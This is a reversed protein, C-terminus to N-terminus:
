DVPTSGHLTGVKTAIVRSDDITGAGKETRCVIEVNQEAAFTQVASLSLVTASGSAEVSTLGGDWTTTASPDQALACSMESNAETAAFTVKGQLLYSGAPVTVQGFSAFTSTLTGTARGDAYVDSPGAAGATGPAGAAGNAGKAGNSGNRGAAGRQGRPGQPGVKSWSVARESRKCHSAIRLVGTRKNYCAHISGSGAGVAAYAGGGLLLFLCITAVVNGYTLRERLKRV